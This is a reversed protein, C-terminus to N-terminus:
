AQLPITKGKGKGKRRSFLWIFILASFISIQLVNIFGPAVYLASDQSV